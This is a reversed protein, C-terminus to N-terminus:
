CIRLFADQSLFRFAHSPGRQQHQENRRNDKQDARKQQRHLTAADQMRREVSPPFTLSLRLHRGERQALLHYQLLSACAHAAPLTHHGALHHRSDGSAAPQGGLQEGRDPAAIIRWPREHQVAPRASVM